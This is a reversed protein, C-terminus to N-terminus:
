NVIFLHSFTDIVCYVLCIVEVIKSLTPNSTKVATTIFHIMQSIVGHLGNLKLWLKPPCIAEMQKSAPKQQVYEKSGSSPPSTGGFRRNFSLPSSPVMDWFLISKMKSLKPLKNELFRFWCKSHDWEFSGNTVVDCFVTGPFFLIVIGYRNNIARYRELIMTIIFDFGLVSHSDRKNEATHALHCFSKTWAPFTLSPL